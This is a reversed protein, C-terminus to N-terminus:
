PSLASLNGAGTCRPTRNSPQLGNGIAGQDAWIISNPRPHRMGDAARRHPAAYHLASGPRASQLIRLPTRSLSPRKTM